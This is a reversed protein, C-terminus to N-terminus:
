GETYSGHGFNADTISSGGRCPLSRFSIHRIDTFYLIKSVIGLYSLWYIGPLRCRVPTLSPCAPSPPRSSRTARMPWRADDAEAGPEIQVISLELFPVRYLDRSTFFVCRRYRQHGRSSAKGLPIDTPVLFVSSCRIARQEREALDVAQAGLRHRISCFHRRRRQRGAMNRSNCLPPWFRNEHFFM